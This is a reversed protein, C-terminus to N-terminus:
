RKEAAQQQTKAQGKLKGQNQTSPAKLIRVELNRRAFRLYATRRIKITAAM